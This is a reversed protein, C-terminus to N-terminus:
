TADDDRWGFTPEGKRQAGTERGRVEDSRLDGYTSEWHCKRDTKGLCTNEAGMVGWIPNTKWVSDSSIGRNLTRPLRVEEFFVRIKPENEWVFGGFEETFKGRLDQLCHRNCRFFGRFVTPENRLFTYLGREGRTARTAQGEYRGRSTPERGHLPAETLRASPSVGRHLQRPLRTRRIEGGRRCGEGQLWPARDGHHRRITPGAGIKLDPYWARRRRPRRLTGAFSAGTWGCNVRRGYGVGDCTDLLIISQRYLGM